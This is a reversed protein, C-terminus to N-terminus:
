WSDDMRGLTENAKNSIKNIIDEKKRKKKRKKEAKTKQKSISSPSLSKISLTSKKKRKKKKQTKIANSVLSLNPRQKDKKPAKSSEHLSYPNLIQVKM